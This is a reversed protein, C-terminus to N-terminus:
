LEAAPHALFILGEATEEKIINIIHEHLIQLM